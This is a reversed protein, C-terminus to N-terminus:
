AQAPRLIQLGLGFNEKRGHTSGGEVAREAKEKEYEYWQSGVSERRQGEKADRPPSCREKSGKGKTMLQSYWQRSALLRTPEM